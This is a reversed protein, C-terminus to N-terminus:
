DRCLKENFLDICFGVPKEEGTPFAVFMNDLTKKPVVIKLPKEASPMAWGKPDRGTLDGPWIVPGALGGVNVVRLTPADSLMGDKFRIRGSLGIFDSELLSNLIM